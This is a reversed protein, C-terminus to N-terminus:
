ENDYLSQTFFFPVSYYFWSSILSYNSSKMTLVQWLWHFLTSILNFFSFIKSSFLQVIQEKKIVWDENCIIIHLFNISFQHEFNWYNSLSVRDLFMKHFFSINQQNMSRFHTSCSEFLHCSSLILDSYFYCSMNLFQSNLFSHVIKTRNEHFKTFIVVTLPVTCAGIFAARM